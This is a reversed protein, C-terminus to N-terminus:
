VAACHGVVIGELDWVELLEKALAGERERAVFGVQDRAQLLVVALLSTPCTPRVKREADEGGKMRKEM